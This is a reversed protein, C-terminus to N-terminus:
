FGSYKKYINWLVIGVVVAFVLAYSKRNDKGVKYKKIGNILFILAITIQLAGIIALFLINNIILSIGLLMIFSIAAPKVHAEIFSPADTEVITSQSLQATIENLKETQKLITVTNSKTSVILHGDVSKSLHLIESIVIFKLSGFVVTILGNNIIIVYGKIKASYKRNSFYVCFCFAVFGIILEMILQMRDKVKYSTFEALVPLCVFFWGYVGISWLLFKRQVIKIAEPELKYDM